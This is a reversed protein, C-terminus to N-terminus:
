LIQQKTNQYEHKAIQEAILSTLIQRGNQMLEHAALNYQLMWDDARREFTATKSASASQGEDDAASLNKLSSYFRAASALLTGGFLNAHGGLGWYHLDVGMDPILALVGATTDSTMADKRSSRASPSHINLDADENKDLYLRGQSSAGSQQAPS